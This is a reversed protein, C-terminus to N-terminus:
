AKGKLQSVMKALESERWAKLTKTVGNGMSGAQLLFKMMSEDSPMEAIAVFDYEGMTLFIQMSGGAQEMLRRANEWRQPVDAVNRIGQETFNGLVIYHPM